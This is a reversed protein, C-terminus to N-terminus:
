NLRSNQEFRSDVTKSSFILVQIILGLIILISIELQSTLHSSAITRYSAQILRKGEKVQIQSLAEMEGRIFHFEENIDYKLQQEHAVQTSELSNEMTELTDLHSKLSQFYIAEDVTLKTAEYKEIINRISDTLANNARISIQEQGELMDKKDQLHRSLEFLYIEAMLRDKYVATFSEQLESFHQKDILNTALVLVFVTLLALAANFKQKIVYTWKM